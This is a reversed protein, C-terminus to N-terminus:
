ARALGQAPRRLDGRRRALVARRHDERRDRVRRRGQRHRGPPRRRALDRAAVDPRARRQQGRRHRGGRPHRRHRLLGDHRHGAQRERRPGQPGAGRRVLPRAPLHPGDRHRPRVRAHGRRLEPLRRRRARRGGRHHRRAHLRSGRGPRDRPQRARRRRDGLPHGRLRPPRRRVPDEIGVGGGVGRSRHLGQRTSPAQPVRDRGDARGRDARAPGRPAEPRGRPRRACRHRAARPHRRPAQARRPREQAHRRGGLAPRRPPVQREPPRGPHEITPTDPTQEAHAAPADDYAVPAPARVAVAEVNAAYDCSTCRVYTDEGVDAKALFEESKSGGM